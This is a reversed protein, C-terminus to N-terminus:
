GTASDASNVYITFTYTNAAAIGTHELTWKVYYGEGPNLSAAYDDQMWDLTPTQIPASGRMATLTFEAPVGVANWGIWLQINGINKIFINSNITTTDM